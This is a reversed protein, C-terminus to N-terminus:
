VIYNDWNISDKIQWGEAITNQVYTLAKFYFDQLDELSEFKHYVPNETTGFKFTPLITGNSQVAIDYAAKYNFQSEMSLWVPMDNWVFGSLIKEDTQENYWNLIVQKIEDITPKHDFFECIASKGEVIDWAIM